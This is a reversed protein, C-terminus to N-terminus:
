TPWHRWTLAAPMTSSTREGIKGLAETTIQTRVRATADGPVSHVRLVAENAVMSILQSTLFRNDAVRARVHQKRGTGHDRVAEM